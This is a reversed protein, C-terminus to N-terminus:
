VEFNVSQQPFEIRRENFLNLDSLNDQTMDRKKLTNEEIQLCKLFM